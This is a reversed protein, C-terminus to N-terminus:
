SNNTPIDRCCIGDRGEVPSNLGYNLVFSNKCVGYAIISATCQFFSNVDRMLPALRRRLCLVNLQPSFTVKFVLRDSCHSRLAISGTANRGAFKQLLHDRRVSDFM